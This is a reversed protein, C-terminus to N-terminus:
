VKCPCTEDIPCMVSPKSSRRGNQRSSQFTCLRWRTRMWLVRHGLGQKDYPLNPHVSVCVCVRVCVCVCAWLRHLYRRISNEFRRRLFKHIFIRDLSVEIGFSISAHSSQWIVAFKNTRWVNIPYALIAFSNTKWVIVSNAVTSGAM